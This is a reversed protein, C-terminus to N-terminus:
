PRGLQPELEIMMKEFKERQEPRLIQLIRNKGTARLDDLQDQLSQYYQQYDELVMGIMQTQESSLNLEKRFRQLVVEQGAPRTTAASVTRHLLRDRLGLRM